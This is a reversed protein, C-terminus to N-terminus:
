QAFVSASELTKRQTMVWEASDIRQLTKRRLYPQTLLRTAVEVPVGLRYLGVASAKTEQAAAADLVADILLASYPDTRKRYVL